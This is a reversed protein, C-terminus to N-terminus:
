CVGENEKEREGWGKKQEGFPLIIYVKCIEQLSPAKKSDRRTQVIFSLIFNSVIWKKNKEM